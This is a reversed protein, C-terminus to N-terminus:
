FTSWNWDRPVSSAVLDGQNSVSDSLPNLDGLVHNREPFVAAKVPLGSSRHSNENRNNADEIHDSLNKEIENLRATRARDWRSYAHYCMDCARSPIGAPHFRADQDLPVTHPTHSSCFVHGCHRCHHRRLFLGFFSRCTPSDCSPSASDAKWHERTPCGTVEGLNGERLWEDEAMKSVVSRQSDVTSSRSIPAVDPISNSTNNDADDLSDLSGHVSRPPTLPSLKTARETPRLVAPVYLPSKLPRLQRSQQHVHQLQANHLRPSTPSNNAPTVATSNVPSPHGNPNNITITTSSSSDPQPPQAPSITTM